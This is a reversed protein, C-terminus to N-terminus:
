VPGASPTRVAVPDKASISRDAVSTQSHPIDPAGTNSFAWAKPGPASGPQSPVSRAADTSQSDEEVESGGRPARGLWGISLVLAAIMALAFSPIGLFIGIGLHFVIGVYLFGLQWYRPLLLALGVGIELALVSWTALPLFTPSNLLPGTLEMAWSPFGFYPSHAVYYLQTGEAWDSSGFKALGAHLYIVAVQVCIAYRSIVALPSQWSGAQTGTHWHWRRSDLLTIPVLLLTLVTTVQEGGDLVTGSTFLSASVYWHVVGTFRPRYGSAVLLLLLIALVRAGDLDERMACFIGFRAPGQCAPTQERGVARAFLHEPETALLTLATSAALLSRALGLTMDFPVRSHLPREIAILLRILKSTLM